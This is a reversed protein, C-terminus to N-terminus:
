LDRDKMKEISIAQNHDWTHLRGLALELRKKLVRNAEALDPNAAVVRDVYVEVPKEVIKDIYVPKSVEVIKEVPKEVIRDVYVVKAEPPMAALRDHSEQLKAFRRSWEKLAQEHREVMTRLEEEREKIRPDPWRNRFWNLM